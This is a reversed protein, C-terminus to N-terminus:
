KKIAEEVEKTIQDGGTSKWTAVFKDFDNISEQGTVIKLFAEDQLKQLNANKLKMSATQGFFVPNVENVKAEAMLKTSVMRSTYGSWADASPNNPNKLYEQAKEYNGKDAGLSDPDKKGQLALDINKYMDLTANNDNILIGVPKVGTDVSQKTYDLLEQRGYDEFIMKDNLVSAIKVLLEPHKFGKRVVFYDGAAPNQTYATVTGDSNVPAIYPTWQAKPNVKKADNLPYDPSWWPGFFAGAQGNVILSTIDDGKRAAIQPDILGKKYLDAVKQLGKKMNATTSGYVVKGDEKIWQNPFANYLALVNDMQYLSAYAGGITPSAVLGITKGKGNGGPDKTVFENLINEVDDMTKPAKLGLKDMWDQRLWLMTPTNSCQTSPLAMLKGDFTASALAKGGYSAYDKKITDTADNKYVETLDEIMNNDVLQKLTAADVQMIDPITGSAIAMSVKQKYADGSAAEFADKNQVNLVEKLYRTYANNEYTDGKPFRPSGPTAKGLTYVVQQDYKGYPTTAAKSTDKVNTDGSSGCGTFITSVTFIALSLAAIKMKLSNNRRIM